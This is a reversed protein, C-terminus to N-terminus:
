RKAYTFKATPPIVMMNEDHRLSGKLIEGREMASLMLLPLGFLRDAAMMNDYPLANINCWRINEFIDTETALDGTWSDVFFFHIEGDFGTQNKVKFVGARVIKELVPTIGIEERVERQACHELTPDKEPEFKGGPGNDKGVMLIRRAGKTDKHTGIVIEDLPSGDHRVTRRWPFCVTMM